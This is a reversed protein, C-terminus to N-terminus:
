KSAKLGEVVAQTFGHQEMAALGRLTIGGPTTVKDIETQPETQNADLLALAGKMTQIVIRLAEARDIGLQMGGTVAADMYKFAYAIGCSSLATVAVMQAEDVFFLEGLAAFLSDIAKRQTESANQGCAFTASRGLTVATNPIVRFIPQLPRGVLEALEALTIGAVISVVIQDPRLTSAIQRLVEAALWPKVAVVVMDAGQIAAVNDQTYVVPYDNQAFRECLSSKPHSITTDAASVIKQDVAGFAIAGGMNGGGLIAIKM